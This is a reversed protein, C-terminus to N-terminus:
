NPRNHKVFQSAPSPGTVPPLNTLGLMPILEEVLEQYAIAGASRRDYDYIPKGALHARNIASSQPIKTSLLTDGFLDHFSAEIEANMRKARADVRTAVIGALQISRNLRSRLTEVALLMDGVGELALISMDCPILLHDAACLANLTLTGLNPPCDFIILDWKM